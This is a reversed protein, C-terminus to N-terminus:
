FQIPPQVAYPGLQTGSTPELIITSTASTRKVDAFWNKGLIESIGTINNPTLTTNITDQKTNKSQIQSNITTVLANLTSIDRFYLSSIQSPPDILGALCPYEYKEFILQRQQIYQGKMTSENYAMNMLDYFMRDLPNLTNIVYSDIAINTKLLNSRLLTFNNLDDMSINLSQSQLWALNMANVNDTKKITLDAACQSARLNYIRMDYFYQDMIADIDQALYGYYGGTSISGGGSMLAVNISNPPVKGVIDNYYAALQARWASTSMSSLGDITSIQWIISSVEYQYGYISSMTSARTSSYYKLNSLYAAYDNAYQTSIRVQSQINNYTIMLQTSITSQVNTYFNIQQDLTSKQSAAYGYQLSIDSISSLIYMEELHTQHLLSSLGNITNELSTQQSIDTQVDLDAAAILRNIETLQTIVITSYIYNQSAELILRQAHTSQYATSLSSTLARGTSILMKLTSNGPDLSLANIYFSTSIISYEMQGVINNESNVADQYQQTVIGQSLDLGALTSLALTGMITSELDGRQTILTSYYRQTSTLIYTEAAFSTSYSIYDSMMRAYGTSTSFYDTNANVLASSYYNMQSMIGAITSNTSNYVALNSIYEDMEKGYEINYQELLSTNTSYEVITTSYESELSSITSEIGITSYYLTSYYEQQQILDANYNGISTSTSQWASTSLAFQTSAQNYQDQLGGPDNLVHLLQNISITNMNILDNDIDIQQQIAAALDGLQIQTLYAIEAPSSIHAASLLFLLSSYSIGSSSIFEQNLYSSSIYDGGRLLNLAGGRSINPRFMRRICKINKKKFRRM